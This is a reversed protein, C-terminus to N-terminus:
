PRTKKCMKHLERCQHGFDEPQAYIQQRAADVSLRVLRDAIWLLEDESGYREVFARKSLELSPYPIEPPAGRHHFACLGITAQHGIRRGCDTVHHIECPNGDNGDIMCAICGIQGLATMRVNDSITRHKTKGVM